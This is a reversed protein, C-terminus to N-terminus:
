AITESLLVRFSPTPDWRWDIPPHRISGSFRQYCLIMTAATFDLVYSSTGTEEQECGDYELTVELV